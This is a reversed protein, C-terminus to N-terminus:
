RRESISSDKPYTITYEASFRASAGAGLTREWAAVGPQEQWAELTPAPNLKKSVSIREDTSVPTAELLQLEIPTSHRNEVLYARGIQRETKNGIFGASANMQQVPQVQVRVLEDRGFPLAIQAREGSRWISNGVLQAGRFLQLPGDPWVGEPRALDALLYAASDSAPVTRVLLRADLTQSGLPFSVRQNNAALTVQGPVEFETSFQGQMVQVVFEPEAADVEGALARSKMAVMPAPAAAYAMAVPEPIQPRISFEWPRPEAGAVAARPSGTSLRLSVGQWDEGSAQGVLALRELQVTRASADLTARYAPSWSPGAVEYRLRVEGDRAASLNLTLSRVNGRASRLRDREALLPNLQLELAERQRALRHQQQLSDQGLRKLTEVTAVLQAGTAGQAGTPRPSSAASEPALAKLYDLALEQGGQEAAIAALQDELERIRADHVSSNCAPVQERPQTVASVPGLRIGADAEVRLQQLDFNVPLCPLVLEKMGPTVRATREVLASGPYVTVRTIRSGAEAASVNNQLLVGLGLLWLPATNFRLNM